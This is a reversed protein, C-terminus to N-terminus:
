NKNKSFKWASSCMQNLDMKTKWELVRNSKSPDAYCSSVDGERRKIIKKPIKIGTVNEFTDILEMVSYGRGTGLNFINIGSTKKLHILAKVHASALDMIHIYDRVGTGDKTEYNNGYIDINKKLGKAVDILSPMLNQSKGSIPDDGILGSPHAGIPNFYRLCAISWNQDYKVLDRLIKEIMLKTEGYPNIAMLPHDEDIPLYRPEGYISASSSFLFNKVGNIQMANLLSITGLVNVEYYKLPNNVSDQISKLAAFHLVSSIKNNKIINILKSTDRIDGKVYSIKKGIVRELREVINERCNSFDDFIIFEAKRESLIAATHSGIYGFGGTLLIRNM